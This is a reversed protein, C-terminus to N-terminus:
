EHIRFDYRMEWMHYNREHLAKREAHRQHLKLASHFHSVNPVNSIDVVSLLTMHTGLLGFCAWIKLKFCAKFSLRLRFHPQQSADWNWRMQIYSSVEKVVVVACSESVFKNKNKNASKKGIRTEDRKRMVDWPTGEISTHHPPSM